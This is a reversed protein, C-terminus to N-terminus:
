PPVRTFFINGITNSAIKRANKLQLISFVLGTAGTMCAIVGALVPGIVTVTCGPEVACATRLVLPVPVEAM